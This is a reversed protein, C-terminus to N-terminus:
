IAKNNKNNTNRSVWNEKQAQSIKEYFELDCDQCIKQIENKKTAVSKKQHCISCKAFNIFYM